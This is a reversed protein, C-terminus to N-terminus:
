FIDLTGNIYTDQLNQIGSLQRQLIYSTYTDDGVIIEIMDGTELYPLGAAWMEFPFWTLDEMKAAMSDAYDEIQQETWVQNKLLWNDSMNYDTTGGANVTKEYIMDTPMNNEDLGKYTIILKRFTQAGLTDTWLKSYWSKYSAESMGGPYLSDSPYLTDLPYLASENLEVGYFYDTQRDLKGFKCTLEYTASMIQRLTVDQIDTIPVRILDEEDMDSYAIQYVQDEMATAMSYPLENNNYTYGVIITQGELRVAEFKSPTDFNISRVNYLNTMESIKRVKTAGAAVAYEYLEPTTYYYTDRSSGDYFEVRACAIKYLYGKFAEWVNEYDIIVMSFMLHLYSVQASLDWQYEQLAGVSLYVNSLVNTTAWCYPATTVRPWYTNNDGQIKFTVDQAGMMDGLVTAEPITVATKDKEYYSISYDALLTRRLAYTAIKGDLYDSPTPTAAQIINADLYDSQLKNYATIKQIGTSAQRSCKKVKFYGMPITHWLMGGKPSIRISVSGSASISIEDGVSCNNFNITQESTSAYVTRTSILGGNEEYVLDFRISNAPVTVVYDAANSITYSESQDITVVQAEYQVDIFSQIQRGTINVKDFYQFELSSGECLGFKLTDGSCMREDFKVSEYVLNANDITFDISGDNKLVNFRYEKLRRGDRLADKVLVPVDIM